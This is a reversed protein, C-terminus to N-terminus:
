IIAVLFYLNLNRLFNRWRVLRRFRRVFRFLLALRRVLFLVFL